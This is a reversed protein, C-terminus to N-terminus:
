LAVWKRLYADADTIPNTETWYYKSKGFGVYYGTADKQMLWLNETLTRLIRRGDVLDAREARIKLDSLVHELQIRPSNFVPPGPTKQDGPFPTPIIAALSTYYYKAM